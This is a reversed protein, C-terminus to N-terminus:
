ASVAGLALLLWGILLGGGVVGFGLGIAGGGELYIGFGAGILSKKGGGAGAFM